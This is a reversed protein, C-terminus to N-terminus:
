RIGSGPHPVAPLQVCRPRIDPYDTAAARTGTVTVAAGSDAFATAIANGIGSTGGTVLVRADTFDFHVTNM